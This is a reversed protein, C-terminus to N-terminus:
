DLHNKPHIKGKRKKSWDEYYKKKIPDKGYIKKRKESLEGSRDWLDGLSGKQNKTYESFQKPTCDAKLTGNTNVEPVTFVRKWEVGDKDIYAHKEHISQSIDIIEETEPNIYTYLPM